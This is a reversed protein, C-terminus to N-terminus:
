EYRLAEVPDLRSARIAPLMGFLVGTLASVLLAAIIALPPISAEIPWLNRIIVALTGGGLLGIVAGVTTMTAAEVLFQWLILRRTAGLAKRVGIERTRETVSIMMIAVVGVGGVLLGIASLGIMVLGFVGVIKNYLDLIKEQGSVFFTNTQAPRLGRRIRMIEIAQDMAIDRPVSDVPKVTLDLWRVDTSLRRRATEFPMIIKGKTGADFINALSHYEGIVLFPKGAVDIIKGAAPADGFLRMKLNDDVLVVQAASANEAATFSRGPSIDGGDVSTWDPTYADVQAGPLVRDKYRVSASTNVHAIVGQISPQDAVDRALATTLPRYRIWPCSDPGGDCENFAIPWKTIYFTNPGAAAFGKEVGQNIGHVTASMATVAVVGVAIGMVTLGARVKNVRMADFAIKVGESLAFLRGAGRM